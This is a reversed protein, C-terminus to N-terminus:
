ARAHPVDTSGRSRGGRWCGAALLWCGALLGAAPWYDVLWWCRYIAPDIFYSGAPISYNFTEKPTPDRHCLSGVGSGQFGLFRIFISSVTALQSRTFTEKPAPDRHCLSGVGRGRFDSSDWSFRPFQLWSPNLLPKKLPPIEIAFAALGRGRFHLSDWSFRHFLLWSPDRSPLKTELTEKSKFRLFSVFWLKSCVGLYGCFGWPRSLPAGWYQLLGLLGFARIVWKDCYGYYGLPRM